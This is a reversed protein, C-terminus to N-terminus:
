CGRWGGAAPQRRGCTRVLYLCIIFCVDLYLLDNSSISIHPHKLSIISWLHYWVMKCKIHTDDYKKSYIIYNSSISIVRRKQGSGEWENRHIKMEMERLGATSFISNYCLACKWRWIFVFIDRVVTQITYTYWWIKMIPQWIFRLIMLKIICNM